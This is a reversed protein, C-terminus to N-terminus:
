NCTTEAMADILFLDYRGDMISLRNVSFSKSSIKVNSKSFSLYFDAVHLTSLFTLPSSLRHLQLALSALVMFFKIKTGMDLSIM